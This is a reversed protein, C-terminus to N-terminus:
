VRVRGLMGEYGGLRWCVRVRGLLGESEGAYGGLGWCVRVRGTGLM